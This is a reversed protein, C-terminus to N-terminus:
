GRRAGGTRGDLMTSLTQGDLFQSFVAEVANIEREKGGPRRHALRESGDRDLSAGDDDVVGAGKADVLIDRQNDGFDVAM